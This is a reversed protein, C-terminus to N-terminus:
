EVRMSSNGNGLVVAGCRAAARFGDQSWVIGIM